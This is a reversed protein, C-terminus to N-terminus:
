AEGRTALIEDVLREASLFADEVRGGALWDGCAGISRAADWQRRRCPEAPRAFLWRHTAQLEVDPLARGIVAQFAGLLCREVEAPAAEVHEASWAASSHFVWCEGEGRGPKAANRASWALPGQEFSAADFPVDLAEAFCTMVAHCPLMRVAEAAAALEPSAALLPAAQPAPAAVVLTDFGDFRRGSEAHLTWGRADREVKEIRTGLECPLDGRLARAIGSMGPLGVYRTRDSREPRVGAASVRVVRADWRAVVGAEIWAAVRDRFRDDRVTLYQAGHDFPGHATRRTSLRGGAGRAKDFLRVDGGAERLRRAAQLGAIGAGIVAVRM